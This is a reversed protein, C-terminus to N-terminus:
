EKIRESDSKLVGWMKISKIVNFTSGKRFILCFDVGIYIAKFRLQSSGAQSVNRDSEITCYFCMALESARAPLGM